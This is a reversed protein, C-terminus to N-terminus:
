TVPLKLMAPPPDMVIAGPTVKRTTTPPGLQSMLPPPTTFALWIGACQLNSQRGVQVEPDNPPPARNSPIMLAGSASKVRLPPAPKQPARVALDKLSVPPM